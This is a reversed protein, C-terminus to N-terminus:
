LKLMRVTQSLDSLDVVRYRMRDADNDTCTTSSGDLALKLGYKRADGSCDLGFHLHGFLLGLARDRLVQCLSYADKLRLFPRTLQIYLYYMPNRDGVDPMVSYGFTFPHHHLYIIVQKGALAPSDLLQSLSSLQEKGLHGEAFWREWFSMEEANSDLGIFVHNGVECLVPFVPSRGQFIFDGFERLFAQAAEEDVSMADGYDHNGPCLLVRYRTALRDLLLRGARRNAETACDILDGTHIILCNAPHDPPNALLDDVVREFRLANDGCGIHTDSIHILKM